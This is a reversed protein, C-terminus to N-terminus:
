RGKSQLKGGLLAANIVAGILIAASIINLWLMTIFISAISGYIVSYRSFNNIYFNFPMSILYWTLLTFVAGPLLERLKQRKGNSLQYILVIVALMTLVVLGIGAFGFILDTIVGREVIHGIANYLVDRFVLLLMSFVISLALVITLVTGYLWQLLFPRGRVGGHVKNIGYMLTRFAAAITLMTFGLSFSMLNPRQTTLDNFIGEIFAAVEYPFLGYAEYILMDPEIDFHGVLTVLFIIFPFLAFILKYTLQVSLPMVEKDVSEKVVTMVFGLARKSLKVFYNM